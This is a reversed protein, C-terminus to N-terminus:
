GAVRAHSQKGENEREAKRERRDAGLSLWRGLDVADTDEAILIRRRPLPEALSQAVEAVDIAAIDRQFPSPRLPPRIPERSERGLQDAVLDFDDDCRSGLRDPCRHV